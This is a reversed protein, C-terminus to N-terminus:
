DLPAPPKARTALMKGWSSTEAEEDLGREM